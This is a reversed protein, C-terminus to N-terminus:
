GRRIGVRRLDVLSMDFSAGPLREAMLGIVKVFEEITNTIKNDVM